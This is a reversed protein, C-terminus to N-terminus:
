IGIFVLKYFVSKPDLGVPVEVSAVSNYLDMM